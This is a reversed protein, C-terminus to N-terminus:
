VRGEARRPRQRGCRGRRLDHDRRFGGGGTCEEDALTLHAGARRRLGLRPCRVCRHASANASMLLRVADPGNEQPQQASFECVFQIKPMDLQTLESSIALGTIKRSGNEARCLTGHGKGAHSNPCSKRSSSLATPRSNSKTSSWKAKECFAIVDEVHATNASSSTSGISKSRHSSMPLIPQDDKKDRLEDAIDQATYM